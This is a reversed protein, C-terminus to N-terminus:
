SVEQNSQMSNVIKMEMEERNPDFNFCEIHDCNDSIIKPIILDSILPTTLRHTITQNNIIKTTFLLSTSFGYIEMNFKSALVELTVGTKNINLIECNDIKEKFDYTRPVYYDIKYQKIIANIFKEKLTMNQNGNKLVDQAILIRKGNLNPILPNIIIETNLKLKSKQGFYYKAYSPNSLYTKTIKKIYKSDEVSLLYSALRKLFPKSSKYEYYNMLGDELFIIERCKLCKFVVRNDFMEPNSMMITESYFNSLLKYTNIGWKFLNKSSKTRDDQLIFVRDFCNQNPFEKPESKEPVIILYHKEYDNWEKTAMAYFIDNYKRALVTLVGKKM